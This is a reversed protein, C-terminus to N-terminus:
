RARRRRSPIAGALFDAVLKRHLAAILETAGAAAAGALRVLERQPRKGVLHRTFLEVERGILANVADRYILLDQHRFGAAADLGARSLRGVARLVAADHPAFTKGDAAARVLGLRELEAVTEDALGTHAPVEDRALPLEAPELLAQLRRGAALLSSVTAATESSPARPRELLRRIAALPLYRSQM